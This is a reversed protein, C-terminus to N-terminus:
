YTINLLHHETLSTWYTINPLHHETLSTRYTINPLHHKALLTRYAINGTDCFNFALDNCPACYSMWEMLEQSKVMVGLCMLTGTGDECMGCYHPFPLPQERVSASTLDQNM